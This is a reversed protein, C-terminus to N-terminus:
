QDNPEDTTRTVEEDDKFPPQVLKGTTLSYAGSVTKVLVEGTTARGRRFRDRIPLQGFTTL